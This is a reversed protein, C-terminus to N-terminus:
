PGIPQQRRFVPVGPSRARLRSWRRAEPPSLSRRPRRANTTTEPPARMAERNPAEYGPMRLVASPQRARPEAGKGGGGPRGLRGNSASGALRSPGFAALPSGLSEPSVRPGGILFSSRRARVRPEARSPTYPRTRTRLRVGLPVARPRLKNFRRAPCSPSPTARGSSAVGLRAGFGGACRRM